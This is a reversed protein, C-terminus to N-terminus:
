AETLEALKQAAVANRAVRKKRWRRVGRVSLGLVVLGMVATVAVLIGQGIEHEKMWARERAEMDGLKELVSGPTAAPGDFPVSLAKVLHNNPNIFEDEALPRSALDQMIAAIDAQPPVVHLEHMVSKLVPNALGAQPPYSGPRDSPAESLPETVENLGDVHLTSDAAAPMTRTSTRTVVKFFHDLKREPMRAHLDKQLQYGAGITATPEARKELAQTNSPDQTKVEDTFLSHHWHGNEDKWIYKANAKM